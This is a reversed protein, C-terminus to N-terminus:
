NSRHKELIEQARILELIWQMDNVHSVLGAQIAPTTDITSHIRCFNYWVFYLSLAYSHHEMKKSHANTKRTYRRLSMRTTLNHREMLTTSVHEMKPNGCVRTIDAGIYKSKEYQKVVQAFDVEQHFVTPTVKTYSPLGDTSIQVRGALRRRLDQMFYFAPEEGRSDSTMYSVILKSEPDLATWLWVNGAYDPDGKIGNKDVKKQKTYCLVWIEDCQILQSSVNRVTSNFYTECARGADILLKTVTNISVDAIRSISRMSSGEVLMSLIQIRKETSLKNM